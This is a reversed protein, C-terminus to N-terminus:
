ASWAAKGTRCTATTSSIGSRWAWATYYLQVLGPKLTKAVPACLALGKEPLGVPCRRRRPLHDDAWSPELGHPDLDGWGDLGWLSRPSNGSALRGLGSRREDTLQLRLGDSRRTHVGDRIRWFGQCGDADHIASVRYGAGPRLDRRTAPLGEDSRKLQM